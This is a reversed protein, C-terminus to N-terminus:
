LLEKVADVAAEYNPRNTGESVYEVYTVKDKTEIVFVSRALLLFEEM